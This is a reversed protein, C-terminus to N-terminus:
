QDGTNVLSRRNVVADSSRLCHRVYVSVFAPNSRDLQATWNRELLEKETKLAAFTEKENKMWRVNRSKRKIWCQVCRNKLNQLEKM